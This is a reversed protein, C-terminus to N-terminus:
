LLWVILWVGVDIFLLGLRIWGDSAAEEEQYGHPLADLETLSNPNM